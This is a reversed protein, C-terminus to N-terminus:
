GVVERVGSEKVFAMLAESKGTIKRAFLIDAGSVALAHEMTLEEAHRTKFAIFRLNRHAVSERFRSQMILTQFFMEDALQTYKFRKLFSPNEAAFALMYRCCEATLSWWASGVYLPPFGEPTRRRLGFPLMAKQIARAIKSLRRLTVDKWKVSRLNYYDHWHFITFRSSFTPMAAMDVSQIFEKGAHTHFYDHIYDVPKVHRCQGSILHFYAIDSFHLGERILRFTAEVTAFSGWQVNMRDKVLRVQPLSQLQLLFPDHPPIDTKRDFHIVFFHKENLLPLLQDYVSEASFHTMLLFCHNM